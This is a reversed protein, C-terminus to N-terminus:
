SAKGAKKRTAPAGDAPLAAEAANVQRAIAEDLPAYLTHWWVMYAPPLAEGNEVLAAPVDGEWPLTLLAEASAFARNLYADQAWQESAKEGQNKSYEAPSVGRPLIPLPTAWSAQWAAMLTQLYAQAEAQPLPPFDWWPLHRGETPLTDLTDLAVVRMVLPTGTAAAVVQGVWYPLLKDLRKAFLDTLAVVWVREGTAVDVGVGALSDQGRLTDGHQWVLRLVTEGTVASLPQVSAEAQTLAAHLQTVAFSLNQVTPLAQYPFPLTGAAAEQAFFGDATLDPQQHLLPLLTHRYRWEDLKNLSFPEHDPLSEEQASFYVNLRRNFFHQVPHKLFRALDGLNLTSPAPRDPLAAPLAAVAPRPQQLAQAAPQWEQAYTFLRSAAQFYRPSFPQLPHLTTLQQLVAEGTQNSLAAPTTERSVRWARALHDRLQGVLVSPPTTQNTRISRGVWSIYLQERASLLAELLLYRDDERRSRDGARAQGAVTMLDFDATAHRRPFEGEGMGLLCMQRFPIARMPTLTCFSIKGAMFHQEPSPDQVSELWAERVVALPLPATLQAAHCQAEWGLLGKRLTDLLRTDQVEHSASPCFCADLLADLRMRWATPSAPQNLVGAWHTLTKFLAALRGVLAASLGAVEDYAPIGDWSAGTGSAYGLVMRDLGFGWTNRPDTYHSVYSQRQASTLGWRVGAGELWLAALPLDSTEIGFRAALAPAELLDLWDSLTCRARPLNLVFELARLLKESHRLKQDAVSYPLHRRDSRPYQGFVAHIFPAYAAIDPMMVVVDRPHLPQGAAACAEFRALLQDHLIEVERQRSHALHFVIAEDGEQLVHRDSWAAPPPTLDLLEGQLTALVSDGEPVEFLEAKNLTPPLPLQPVLTEAEDLQHLYDQGQQGWAALLPQAYLHLEAEDLPSPLGPKGTQRRRALKRYRAPDIIDGWFHQCPNHAAILVQCHQGLATLAQLIQTPLVSVGFVVVRQPLGAPRTPQTALATLFDAHLFARSQRSLGSGTHQDIDALLRQWLAPQWLQSAELPLAPAHLRPLTTEGAAWAQLWDARYVQYQDFVDALRQALQYTKLAALDPHDGIFDTLPAFLPDDALRPLLRYLRWVLAERDLPSQAPVSDKGLVTRYASWLFTAPLTAELGAAIGVRGGEASALGLKLWHAMGKNQTLFCENVLPPLPHHDLWSLTLARLTELRNSHLVILGPTLTLAAPASATMACEFLFLSCHLLM